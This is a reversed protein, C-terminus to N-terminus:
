IPLKRPRVTKLWTVIMLRTVLVATFLSAMIGISLTIGFGKVTGTGFYYLLLAASLTTIHSDIITGFAMRFGNEIAMYVPKGARAEERMREYILVNTDVAMGMTLVIGAIGPLTLTAELLSMLSLVILANVLMALTAFIGFLGYVLVMFAVVFAVGLLSAKAGAAISDSGLSPGVTREEVIKLPAPLAGARLLLALDNASQVTFNGTIIGSGGLIPTNIVPATIVKNDLVIAFPHGVNAATVEGFKQAGAANFRFFVAPAGSKDDYGPHADVLQDGSLMVRSQVAYVPPKANPETRRDDGPILTTGPPVIGSAVEQPTMNENLLHFTMKATRGLLEKLHEPNQLGPVQLLIRDQGQRQIIPERTGTENVRREVIELSQNLVLQQRERRWPDSFGVGVEGGGATVDLQPDIKHLIATIDGSAPDRLSFTVRGNQVALNRYGIKAARLAARVDDTLATLQEREYAPFDVELLLYSGGQLDLGLSVTRQMWAPLKARAEASIFNPLALAIAAACALLILAIKWRSFHLM